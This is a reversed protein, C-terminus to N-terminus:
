GFRSVREEFLEREGSEYGAPTRRWQERAEDRLRGLMEARRRAKRAELGMAVLLGLAIGAAALIDLAWHM